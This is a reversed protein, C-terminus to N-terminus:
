FFGLIASMDFRKHFVDTDKVLEEYYKRFAKLKKNYAKASEQLDKYIEIFYSLLDIKLLLLL